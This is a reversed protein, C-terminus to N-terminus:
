QRNNKQQLARIDKELNDVKEKFWPPPFEKPIQAIQNQIDIMRGLFDTGDKSTFRNSEISTLRKEFDWMKNITWGTTTIMISGVIGFVIITLRNIIDIRRFHDGRTEQQSM